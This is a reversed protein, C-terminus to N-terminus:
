RPTLRRSVPGSVDRDRCAEIEEVPQVVEGREVLAGICVEREQASLYCDFKGRGLVDVLEDLTDPSVLVRGHQLAWRVARDPTSGEFLSASIHTNTNFVYRLKRTTM